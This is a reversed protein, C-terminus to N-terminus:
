NLIRLSDVGWVVSDNPKQCASLNEKSENALEVSRIKLSREV